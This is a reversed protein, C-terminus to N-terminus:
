SHSLTDFFRHSLAIFRSHLPTINNTSCFMEIKFASTSYRASHFLFAFFLVCSLYMLLFIFIVILKNSSKFFILLYHLLRANMKIDVMEHLWLIFFTNISL